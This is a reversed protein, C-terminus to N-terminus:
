VEKVPDGDPNGFGEGEASRSPPTTALGLAKRATVAAPGELLAGGQDCHAYFADVDAARAARSWEARARDLAEAQAEVSRGTGDRWPHARLDRTQTTLAAAVRAAWARAGPLDDELYEARPATDLAAYLVGDARLYASQDSTLTAPDQRLSGTRRDTDDVGAFVCIVERDGLSWSRSDPRLVYVDVDDPVAWADMAYAGKLARCRRDAEESIAATGPYVRGALTFDAFVEAQHTGSCPVEDVDRVEGHLSGGLADFCEGKHASFTAGGGRARHAGHTFGGWVDHAAGSAVALVWLMLGLLSMAMGGVALGRGRGGRRRIQALAILGLVLGVGPLCCLIGLVLSTIALGNVPEPRHYPFYGQGWAQHPVHPPYPAPPRYPAQPPPGGPQSPGPPPPISM